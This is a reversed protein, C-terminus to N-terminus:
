DNEVGDMYNEIAEIAELAGYCVVAEYNKHRLEQLWVEQEVSVKTHSTSKKVSKLIKPADKMEIFLGHYYKNPIPIFLDPVGSKLGEAKFMRRARQSKYAGNPIAFMLIKKETCYINLAIQERQEGKALEYARKLQAIENKSEALERFEAVTM